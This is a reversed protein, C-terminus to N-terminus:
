VICVLRDLFVHILARSFIADSEFTIRFFGLHKTDIERPRVLTLWTRDFSKVYRYRCGVSPRCHGEMIAEMVRSNVAGYKDMSSREITSYINGVNQYMSYNITTGGLKYFM